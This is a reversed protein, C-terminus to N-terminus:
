ESVKKGSRCFRQQSLVGSLVLGGGLPYLCEGFDISRMEGMGVMYSQLRLSFTLMRAHM